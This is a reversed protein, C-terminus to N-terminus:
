SWRRSRRLVFKAVVNPILVDLIVHIDVPSYLGIIYGAMNVRAHLCFPTTCLGLTARCPPTILLFLGGFPKTTIPVSDATCSMVNPTVIVAVRFQFM